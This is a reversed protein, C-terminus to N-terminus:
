GSPSRRSWAFACFLTAFVPEAEIWRRSRLYLVLFTVAMIGLRRGQRRGRLQAPRADLLLPVFGLPVLALALWSVELM